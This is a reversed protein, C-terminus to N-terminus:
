FPGCVLALKVGPTLKDLGDILKERGILVDTIQGSYRVATERMMGMMPWGWLSSILVGDQIFYPQTLFSCGIVPEVPSRNTASGGVLDIIVSNDPILEKVHQNSILFNKGRLESPQEAGNIVIDVDKLWYGISEKATQARGLIHIHKVGQQHLEDLAGQGVNGYGLIVAKINAVDVSPKREKLLSLGYRAGAQGTEHLCQIRRLGFEQPPHSDRYASMAQQGHEREFESLDFIHTGANHLQLLIDQQDNFSQSDYFYLANPGVADLEDFALTPQIVQLSAASRNGARKIGGRLRESWGIVRVQLDGISQENIFPILAANMAVRALIKHDPEHKPSDCIEEMAIVNIRKDQLLKARDPYSHFHAMCFLTCGESMQEVSALAPGKFKIILSKNVYIDEATQMIANNKLYEDDSFGVGDGAGCEVYVKIGAQVLLGVDSPILAVRKELGEPNEPSEIEKALAISSYRASNDLM